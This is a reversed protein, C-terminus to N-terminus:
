GGYFSAVTASGPECLGLANFEAAAIEYAASLARERLPWETAGLADLLAPELRPAIRLRSFATGLWKSYPMYEREILFALHMVERVMRAAIIGSGLEDGVEACRGPFAEEQGIRRWQARLLYRWIHDPY